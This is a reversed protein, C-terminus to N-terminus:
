EVEAREGGKGIVTLREHAHAIKLKIDFVDFMLFGFRKRAQILSRQHFACASYAFLLLRSSVHFLSVVIFVDTIIFEGLMNRQAEVERYGEQLQSCSTLALDINGFPHEIEVIVATVHAADLVNRHRDTHPQVMCRRVSGRSSASYCSGHPDM